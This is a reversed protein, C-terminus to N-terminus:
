SSKIKNKIDILINYKMEESLWFWEGLKNNITPIEYDNTSIKQISLIQIKDRKFYFRIFWGNSNITDQKWDDSNSDSHISRNWTEIAQACTLDNEILLKMKVNCEKCYFSYYEEENVIYEPLQEWEIEYYAIDNDPTLFHQHLVIPSGCMCDNLNPIIAHGSKCGRSWNFNDFVAGRQLIEIKNRFCKQCIQKKFYLEKIECNCEICKM